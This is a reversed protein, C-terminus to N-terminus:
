FMGTELQIPVGNPPQAPSARKESFTCLLDPDYKILRHRQMPYVKTEM